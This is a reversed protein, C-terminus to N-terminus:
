LRHLCVVEPRCACLRTMSMYARLVMVGIISLNGERHDSHVLGGGEEIIGGERSKPCIRM